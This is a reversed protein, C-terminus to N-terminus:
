FPCDESGRRDFGYAGYQNRGRGRAIIDAVNERQTGPILHHPNVCARVDCMHRVVLGFPVAGKHHEYSVRHAKTCTWRGNRMARVNGHGKDDIAGTFIWCENVEDLPMEVKEIMREYPTRVAPM